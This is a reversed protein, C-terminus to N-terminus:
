ARRRGIRRGPHLHRTWSRQYGCPDAVCRSFSAWSRTGQGRRGLLRGPRPNPPHCNCVRIATGDDPYSRPACGGNSVCCLHRARIRGPVVGLGRIGPFPTRLPVGDCRAPASARGPAISSALWSHRSCRGAPPFRTVVSGCGFPGHTPYTSMSPRAPSCLPGLRAVRRGGFHKMRSDFPYSGLTAEVRFQRRGRGRVARATAPAVERGPGFGSRLGGSGHNTPCLPAPNGVM